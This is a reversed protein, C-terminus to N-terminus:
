LSTRTPQQMYLVIDVSICRIDVAELLLMVGRAAVVKGNFPSISFGEQVM